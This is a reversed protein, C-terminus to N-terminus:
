LGTQNYSDSKQGVWCMKRKKPSQKVVVFCLVTTEGTLAQAELVAVNKMHGISTIVLPPLGSPQISQPLLFPSTDDGTLPPLILVLSSWQDLYKKENGLAFQLTLEKKNKLTSLLSFDLIFVTFNELFLSSFLVFTFGM